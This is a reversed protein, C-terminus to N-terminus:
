LYFVYMDFKITLRTLDQITDLAYRFIVVLNLFAEKEDVHKKRTMYYYLTYFYINHVLIAHRTLERFIVTDAINSIFEKITFQLFIGNSTDYSTSILHVFNM